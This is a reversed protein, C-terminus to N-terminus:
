RTFIVFVPLHDSYGGLYRNGYFTRRPYGRPIRDTRVPTSTGTLMYDRIFIGAKAVHLGKDLTLLKSVVINDYLIWQNGWCYSGFGNQRYQTLVDVFMSNYPGVHFATRMPPQDLECNFDGLIALRECGADTVLSDAVISLRRAAALRFDRDNLKSPLHCVLIAIEEGILSGRVLLFERPTNSNILCVTDPFFKDGKYLLALDIGRRDSSTRHIYNYDDTLTMVLDRVVTENEVEALAVVDFGADDIVQAINALKCRYRESNWHRRSQPTFEHDDYFPSPITDFLNETNYFGVSVKDYQAHLTHTSLLTVVLLLLLTLRRTHTM